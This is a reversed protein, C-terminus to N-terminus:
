RRSVLGGSASSPGGLSWRMTGLGTVVMSLSCSCALPASPALDM